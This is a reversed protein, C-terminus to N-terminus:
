LVLSFVNICKKQAMKRINEGFFGRLVGDVPMCTVLVGGVFYVDRFFLFCFMVPTGRCAYLTKCRKLLNFFM